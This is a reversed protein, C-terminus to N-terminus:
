AVCNRENGCYSPTISAIPRRTAPGPSRARISRTSRTPPPAQKKSSKPMEAHWLRAMESTIQRATRGCTAIDGKWRTALLTKYLKVLSEIELRKSGMGQGVGLVAEVVRVQWVCVAAHKPSATILHRHVVVSRTHRGTAHYYHGLQRLMEDSHGPMLKQFAAPAQQPKGVAAYARVFGDRAGAAIEPQGMRSAELHAKRFWTLADAKKSLNMAVWGLRYQVYSHLSSSPFRLVKNYFQQARGMSSKSFFYDAFSLYASPVFRSNPHDKILRYYLKRASMPKGTLQAATGALFLLQDHGAFNVPAHKLAAVCVVLAREVLKIDARFMHQRLYLSGLRLQAGLKRPDRQALQKVRRERAAITPLLSSQPKSLGPMPSAVAPASKQKAARALVPAKAIRPYEIRKQYRRASADSAATVLSLGIAAVVVHRGRLM